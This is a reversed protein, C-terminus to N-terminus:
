GHSVEERLRALARSTQSKVTGISCRLLSAVEREPLDEYVRLVLCARQRAPLALIASWLADREVFEDVEGRAHGSVTRYPRRETRLRRLRSRWLNIAVKRLYPWRAPEDIEHLRDSARVFADQVLDEALHEDECLLVCVRLLALYWAEYAERLAERATGDV